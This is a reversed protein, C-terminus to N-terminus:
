EDDDMGGSTGLETVVPVTWGTVPCRFDRPMYRSRVELEADSWTERIAAARAAIIADAEREDADTQPNVLREDGRYVKPKDSM